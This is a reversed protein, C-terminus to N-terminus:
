VRIKGSVLKFRLPSGIGQIHEGLDPCVRLDAGVNQIICHFHNPMIVMSQCQTDPFKNELEFFETLGRGADLTLDPSKATKEILKLAQQLAQANQEFRQQHLSYGQILINKLHQTSWRRFQVGQQSKIRYGVSIIVDLDYYAVPKDSNAIHMKQMNSKKNVESDNIANRIHRSVVSQDRGFLDVMQAQSLWVTEHEFRVDIQTQGDETQYIKIPNNDM